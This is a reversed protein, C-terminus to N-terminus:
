PEVIVKQGHDFTVKFHNLTEIGVLYEDGLAIVLANITSPQDVLEVAGLYVPVRVVQGSAIRVRRIYLPSQLSEIWDEPIALHGDFGTDVLAVAEGSVGQVLFRISLSPYLPQTM